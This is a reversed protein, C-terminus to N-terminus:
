LLIVAVPDLPCVLVALLSTGYLDPHGDATTIGPSLVGSLLGVCGFKIKTANLTPMEGLFPTSNTMKVPLVPSRVFEVAPPCKLGLDIAKRAPSPLAGPAAPCPSSTAASGCTVAVGPLPYRFLPHPEYSPAYIYAVCGYKVGWKRGM